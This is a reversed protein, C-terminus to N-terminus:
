MYMHVCENFMILKALCNIETIGSLTLQTIPQLLSGGDEKQLCVDCVCSHLSVFPAHGYLLSAVPETPMGWFAYEQNVWFVLGKLLQHLIVLVCLIAAALLLFNLAPRQTPFASLDLGLSRLM